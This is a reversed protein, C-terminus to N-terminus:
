RRGRVASTATLRVAEDEEATPKVAIVFAIARFVYFISLALGISVAVFSADPDRFLHVFACALFAFTGLVIIWTITLDLRALRKAWRNPAVSRIATWTTPGWPGLM